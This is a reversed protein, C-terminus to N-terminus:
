AKERRWHYKAIVMALYLSLYDPLTSLQVM